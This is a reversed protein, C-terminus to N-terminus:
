EALELLRREAEIKKRGASGLWSNFMRTSDTRGVVHDYYYTLGNLAGWGTGPQAGPAMEYSFLIQQISSPLAMRADPDEWGSAGILEAAKPEVTPLYVKNVIDTTSLRLKHLKDGRKQALQMAEISATVHDKARAVNFDGIHSQRYFEAESSHTMGNWCALRMNLNIIRNSTGLIHSTTFLLFGMARDSKHGVSFGGPLEALAFAVKGGKLEGITDLPIGAERCWEHMNIIASRPQYPKWSSGARVITEYGGNELKRAWAIRDNDKKMSGDPFKIHSECAELEWDLKAAGIADEIAEGKKLKYGFSAWPLKHRIITAFDGADVAKKRAAETMRQRGYAPTTLERTASITALNATM